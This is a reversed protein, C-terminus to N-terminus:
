GDRRHGPYVAERSEEDNSGTKKLSEHEIGICGLKSHVCAGQAIM